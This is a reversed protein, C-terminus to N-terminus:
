TPPARPAAGGAGARGRLERRGAVRPRQRGLLARPRGARLRDRPVRGGLAGVALGGACLALLPRSAARPAGERAARRAGAVVVGTAVAVPLCWAVDVLHVTPYAPLAPLALVTEKVGPWDDVGTFVLAATGSALFGPLLARGLAPAPVLGKLAAMEFLMLASVLPGGFVTSVTAFAGALVILQRGSTESRLARSAVLGATLGIAILPGEPGLVLGLGLTALAAILASILGLPPLPELALDGWAPHGGHGPLKLSLAVILGGLTPVALVYWAPPASWGAEDPLDTWVLTQLGDVAGMLLAALFAAPVGLVAALVLIGM